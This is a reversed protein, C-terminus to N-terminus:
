GSSTPSTLDYVTTNGVTKATFNSAVWSSIESGSNGGPGGGGGGAIYYHIEGAAVDAKFQAFTPVPDGSWGGIAMVAKGGSALELSAASQDGTTAAAWKTTTNRLLTALESNASTEGSGSGPSAQQGTAGQATAGQGIAGQPGGRLAGNPPQGGSTTGNSSPGGNAFPNGGFSGRAGGFAGGGFGSGSASVSPGATPTSGNHPTAATQLGYATSGLGVVLAAAGVAVVARRIRAPPVLLAAAAVIGLILVAPRLEPHWNSARGLLEYSWWATVIVGAALMIRSWLEARRRWLVVTGIGVLAAIPPALQVAYYSHTIGSMYSFVGATVLLWGGWLVVAARTRDTRGARQASILLAVVALLAAPLLWSIQTGFESNFMRGLGTSGGFMAGGGGGPAGGFGGGAGGTSTGSGAFGHAIEGAARTGGGPGGSEGTIRSLGNYGFALGLASNDGSGGIYPRDAAPTLAVALVWWGASVVLAVGALLLQGIRRRLRHPGAVLYMLALAPLVTFSQLGKTLFDLGMATGALLLWPLRGSDVARTVAYAAVVVLLTMLADPNNFRFMLVAVPTFACLVGAILGAAPGFWRRVTLYLLGVAAVGMLAQPVLMSWANFGFIRGALEMPWLSLPPKDVTIFNNSDLSGFFFAKWSRTGAQVAAAYFSNAYGSAGLNWLYLVATGVLLMAVAGRRLFPRSELLSAHPVSSPGLPSSQEFTADSPLAPTWGDLDPPAIIPTSVSAQGKTHRLGM